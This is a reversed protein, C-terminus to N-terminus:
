HLVCGEIEKWVMAGYSAKAHLADHDNMLDRPTFGQEAVDTAPMPLLTAGYRECIEELVIGRTEVMFRNAGKYDSYLQRLAWDERELVYDSIYPFPQVVIKGSYSESLKKLFMFGTHRLFGEQMVEQFVAPTILNSVEENPKPDFEAILGQRPIANKYTFGGDIYGLASVIVADYESLPTDPVDAPAFFPPQKPDFSTVVLRDNEVSLNPGVGGPVVHFGIDIKGEPSYSGDNLCSKLAGSQSNGAILIKKM